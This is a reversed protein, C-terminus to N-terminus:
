EDIEWPMQEEDLSAPLGVPTLERLAVKYLEIVMEALKLVLIALLVISSVTWLAPECPLELKERDCVHWLWAGSM